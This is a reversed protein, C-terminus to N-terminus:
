RTGKFSGGRGKIVGGMNMKKPKRDFGTLADIGKIVKNLISFKGLPSGSPNKQTEKFVRTESRKNTKKAYKSEKQSQTKKSM